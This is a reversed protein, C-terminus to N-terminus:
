KKPVILIPCKTIDAVKEDVSDILLAMLKNKPSHGIVLLDANQTAKAIIDPYHDSEEIKVKVNDAEKKFGNRRLLDRIDQEDIKEPADMMMHPKGAGSDNVHLVNIHAKMDKALQVAQGIVKKEEDKGALALLINKYIM